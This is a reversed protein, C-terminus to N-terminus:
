RGPPLGTGNATLRAASKRWSARANRSRIPPSGGGHGPVIAVLGHQNFRTVLQAVADGSRRGAAYAAATYSQGAAVALLAKARAVHSAPESQSRSLRELTTQEEPTLARLPDKQRRTM